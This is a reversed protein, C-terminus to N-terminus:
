LNYNIGTIDKDVIQDTQDINIEIKSISEMMKNEVNPISMVSEDKDLCETVDTDIQDLKSESGLNNKDTHKEDVKIELGENSIDHETTMILSKVEESSGVIPENIAVAIVACKAPTIDGVHEQDTKDSHIPELAEDFPNMLENNESTTASSAAETNLDDAM